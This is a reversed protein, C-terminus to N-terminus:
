AEAPESSAGAGQGIDKLVEKVHAQVDVGSKEVAATGAAEFAQGMLKLAAARKALVTKDVGVDKLVAKCVVTLTKHMDIRQAHWIAEFMLPVFEEQQKAQQEPTPEKNELEKEMTNQLDIVKLAARVADLEAKLQEQRAKAKTFPTFPIGLVYLRQEAQNRYIFGITQLTPGGWSAKALVGSTEILWKQYEEDAGDCYPQLRQALLVALMAQRKRQLAKAQKADQSTEAQLNLLPEGIYPEFADSGFIMAFFQKPDMMPQGNVADIGHKDYAARLTPDQLIQYANSVAQFQEKATPDPNKDPHLNRAKLYYAKKIQAPTADPAVGLVEYLGTDKAKGEPGAAGANEGFKGRAAEFAEQDIVFDPKEVTESDPLQVEFAQIYEDTLSKPVVWSRTEKDWVKSSMKGAIAEPTNYVGRVMQTAGTAVGTVTLTVAGLVGAALGGVAGVAGGKKAGIVPAAVLTGVGAGVGNVMNVVGEGLGTVANKPKKTYFVKGLQEQAEKLKAEQEEKLKEQETKEKPPEEEKVEEEPKAETDAM